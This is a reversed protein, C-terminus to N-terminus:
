LKYHSDPVKEPLKFGNMFIIFLYKIAFVKERERERERERDTERDREEKKTSLILSLAKCMSPLQAVM